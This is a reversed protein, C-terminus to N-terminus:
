RCGAGTITLQNPTLEYEFAGTLALVSVVERLNQNQFRGTLQCFRLRDNTLRVPVNYRRALTRAVEDLPTQRFILEGRSWAAAERGNIAERHMTATQRAFVARQNPTLYLTDQPTAAGSAARIFAVRGTVVATEITPENPYAQVNFSTGLVRVQQKGVHLVFPQQRNRTVEFFAEGQLYVERQRGTFKGPYWLRSGANLRVTTGDALVVKATTGPATHHEEYALPAGAANRLTPYVGYYLGGALLGLGAAAAAVRSRWWPAAPTLPVVRAEAPAATAADPEDLRPLLARLAAATETPTTVTPAPTRWYLRTIEWAAKEPEPAQALWAQLAAHEDPTLEGALEKGMLEHAAAQKM